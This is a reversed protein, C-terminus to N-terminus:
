RTREFNAPRKEVFARVGEAYDASFGLNQQTTREHELQVPLTNAWGDQLAAKTIALAERPQRALQAATQAVAANLADDDVCSWIMGWAEAQEATVPEALLALGAARAPGVLRPLMWSAGGDPGLGIRTFSFAFKASRGAFVIDSALALSAGAGAAIGNVACVVPIPLARLRNILPNLDRALAAGIDVPPAGEPVIRESLDQGACFARGAAAIVLVRCDADAEVADLAARLGEHMAQTFANLKDPRNLVIRAVAGDRISQVVPESM